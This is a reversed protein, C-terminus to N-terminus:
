NASVPSAQLWYSGTYVINICDYQTVSPAAGYFVGTEDAITWTNASINCITVKQGAVAGTETLKLTDVGSGNNTLIVSVGDMTSRIVANNDPTVTVVSRNGLTSADKAYIEDGATLGSPVPLTWAGAAVPLLLFLALLLFLTKKM